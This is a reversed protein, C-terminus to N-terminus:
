KLEKGSSVLVVDSSVRGRVLAIQKQDPSVAYAFIQEAPFKTLPVAAGGAIPQRMLNSIGGRTDIYIMSKGDPMWSASAPVTNLLKVAGGAIPVLAVREGRSAADFYHGALLTGDPSLMPEHFEPPLAASLRKLVDDSIVKEPAGGEIPARRIEGSQESYYVWKSDASPYARARAVIDPSIRTAGSGDPAMRWARIGGDRDSTFVIYKGDSTVRPSVDQGLTSTLQVRGSGDASMIWIDPNGGAETTYVVRGDPMWAIGHAGDDASAETTVAVAKSADDLPMTWITARRENRVTVFSRGDPAVSVGAYSSLDNTLRRPTGSPYPVLFIQSSAEGASEQANVLLGSGDALWAVGGIVRWQPTALVRETGSAPDVIVVQGSLESENNGTAAISKGDPSWALSLLTFNLPRKRVALKRQNTGDAGAVIIYSEGADPAGRLFALQSGDPSFTAATDVDEAILRAGGGLVPVRYLNGLNAGRPYAAYYIHDGDPSFSLGRYNVDGAAVIEVNSTTAVQRLWLSAKGDRASVHAVYRGDRSLAAVGATGTTTLRTLNISDFPRAATQPPATTRQSWMVAAVIAGILVVGAVAFVRTRSGTSTPAPPAAAVGSASTVPVVEGSTLENKLARLDNRLDKASQYRDEPDKALCRNVIKSLERPLGARAETIPRPTDKMIASLISLQTDGAFPRVGTAMEYLIIGLSFVDSRQDVPKGEAQEPSMYMVTGVIRGEGTLAATPMTDATSRVEERLKALGFDLVKVRGDSTVMVNAPKLDRHTIGAQHAAGVADTLPIALALLRDLPLGASPVIEALTSGDLLELTLFPVGDVEEVSHITVINPHNLAAAARAEREFRERRHPDGALETTLVKLAVRRGLKLDDAVYVEGMGGSGLLREIRYHGIQKGVM